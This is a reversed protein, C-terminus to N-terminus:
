YMSTGGRYGRKLSSKLIGISVRPVPM